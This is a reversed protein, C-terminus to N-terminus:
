DVVDDRRRLLGFQMARPWKKLRTVQAAGFLRGPLGSVASMWRRGFSEKFRTERDASENHEKSWLGHYAENEFYVDRDSDATRPPKPVLLSGVAALWEFNISPM